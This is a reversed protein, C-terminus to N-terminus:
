QVQITLLHAVAVAVLNVEPVALHPLTAQGQAVQLVTALIAQLFAPDQAEEVETGALGM